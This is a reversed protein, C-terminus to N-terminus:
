CLLEWPGDMALTVVEAVDMVLPHIRPNGAAVAELAEARRGTITVEAGAAALAKAIDEGIGSGGGTVLAHKGAHEMDRERHRM